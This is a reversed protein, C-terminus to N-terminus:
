AVTDGGHPMVQRRCVIRVPNDAMLPQSELAGVGLRDPTDIVKVSGDVPM